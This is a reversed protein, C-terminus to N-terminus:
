LNIRRLLDLADAIEPHTSFLEIAEKVTELEKELREKRRVLQNQTSAQVGLAEGRAIEKSAQDYSM